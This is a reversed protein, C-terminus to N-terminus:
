VSGQSLMHTTNHSTTAYHKRHRRRHLPLWRLITVPATLETAETEPKQLKVATPLLKHLRKSLPDATTANSVKHVNM